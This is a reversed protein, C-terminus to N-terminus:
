IKSHIPNQGSKGRHPMVLHKFTPAIKGKGLRINCEFNCVQLIQADSDSYYKVFKALLFLHPVEVFRFMFSITIFIKSELPLHTTTYRKSFAELSSTLLQHM